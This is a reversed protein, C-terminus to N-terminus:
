MRVWTVSPPPWPKEVKEVKRIPFSVVGLTPMVALASDVVAVGSSLLEMKLTALERVVQLDVKGARHIPRNFQM